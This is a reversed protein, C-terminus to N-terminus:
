ENRLSIVPNAKAAKLSHFIVALFATAIGILGAIAFLQWSLSIRYAFDQLWLDMLYASFPVAILFSLLTLRLMDKNLLVFIQSVSAGMVKRIGIEKTRNLAHIGSLAFLGLCSMIVAFVTAIGVIGTWNRYTTYQEKLNEDLFSYVFPQDPALKKWTKEIAQLATPIRGQRLKAVIYTPWDKSYSLALPAIKSELSAYHHDQMVGIIKTGMLTNIVGTSDRGIMNALTENVIMGEQDTKRDPSFNRGEVLKIGLTSLYHEDVIFIDVNTQENNIEFGMSFVQRTITAGSGSLSIIDPNTNAWQRFRDVLQASQNTSAFNRVILVQEKDFGLDKESIYRMQGYMILSSSVLFLCMSYQVLLLIRSFWPNIRYTRSGKLINAPQFDSLVLAPYGGAVIGVLLAILLLIGALLPEQWLSFYLQKGTFANFAPLFLYVLGVAMLMAMWVLVQSEAWLQGIVQQRSAGMVKRIGIEGLRSAASTLTLSIYNICVVFLILLGLASLIYSYIPNNVKPWIVRTDFHTDTLPTVGAQLVKVHQPVKEHQRHMDSFAALRRDVFAQMKALFPKVSAKPSLLLFTPISFNSNMVNKDQEYNAMQEIRLLMNFSISSNAPAEKAIGSVIFGKKVDRQTLYLTKGMPNQKGFYKAAMKETIAISTPSALVNEKRGQLLEFSFVQFFDADTYHVTEQFSEKGNSVVTGIEKLRVCTEIEPIERKLAPGFPISFHIWTSSVEGSKPNTLGNQAKKNKALDPLNILELRYIRDAKEHFRDFSYEEKVFLFILMCFAIGTALGFINICSFVKNRRIMRLSINLYNKFM